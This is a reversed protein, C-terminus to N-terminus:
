NVLPMQKDRYLVIEQQKFYRRDEEDVLVLNLFYKVNFKKHIARQTPTLKGKKAFPKLHLRVPITEGKIPAGDMIEFHTIVENDTQIQSGSGTSEKRLIQMEMHKIKIRVLLFDIKGRIVEDIAYKSREYEFEIHLCDEIGVEMKLCPNDAKSPPPTVNQVAFDYENQIKTGYSRSIRVRVFYRLKVNTGSYTEHTKDTGDFTFDITKKDMISGAPALERAMSLFVYHNGRDNNLEIQGILEATIGTHDFKKMGIPLTITVVGEVIDSAKLLCLNTGDPGKVKPRDEQGLFEM